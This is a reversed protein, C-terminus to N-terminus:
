VADDFSGEDLHYSCSIDDLKNILPKNHRQTTIQEQSYSFTPVNRFHLTFSAAESYHNYPCAFLVSLTDKAQSPKARSPKAPLHM